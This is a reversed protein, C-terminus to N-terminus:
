EQGVDEKKETEGSLERPKNKKEVIIEVHKVEGAVDRCIKFDKIHNINKFDELIGEVHKAIQNKKHTWASATRYEKIREEKKNDHTKRTDGNIKKRKKVETTDVASADSDNKKREYTRTIGMLPLIGAVLKSSKSDRRYFSIKKEEMNNNEHKMVEIRRILIHKLMVVDDTDRSSKRVREIGDKDLMKRPKTNEAKENKSTREPMSRTDLLTIPVSIIQRLDEAYAYLPMNDYIIYKIKKKKERGNKDSARKKEEDGEYEIKECDVFWDDYSLNAKGDKRGAMEDKCDIIIRTSALKDVSSVIEERSNKTMTREADGAMVRHIDLPTIEDMGLSTWLSYIADAVMMDFYDIPATEEADERVLKVKTFVREVSDGKKKHGVDVNNWKSKSSVYELEKKRLLDAVKCNNIYYDIENFIAKKM